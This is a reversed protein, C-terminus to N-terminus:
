DPKIPKESIKIKLTDLIYYGGNLYVLRVQTGLFDSGMCKGLEM